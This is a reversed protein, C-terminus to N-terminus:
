IINQRILKNTKLEARSNKLERKNISALARKVNTNVKSLVINERLLKSYDAKPQSLILQAIKEVANSKLTQANKEMNERLTKDKMLINVDKKLEERNKFSLVVGKKKMYELNYEEQKPIKETVVMPLEQNITETISLGGAKNIIMDSASMYLPVKDTFGVNIVKLNEPIKMKSIKQYGKKDKGNIMIIQATEDKISKLLNKLIKLGGSWYGGGFMVMITFTDKDLGLTKRAEDKSIKSYSKESVPLGYPLIQERKFGLKISDDVFDNNPVTIYDVGITAEWFPAYCYDLSSIISKCPLDYVLKLDTIAIGAYFHTCYIVDPRFTLIEGLLGEVTSVAIDQAPCSYRKSPNSNKLLDFIINYIWLARGVAFSYGKDATWVNIPTSFSKLLDVIKVQVEEGGEKELREKVSRACANHGNGATVTLILVKKM